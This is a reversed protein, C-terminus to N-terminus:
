IEPGIQTWPPDITLGIRSCADKKANALTSAYGTFEPVSNPKIAKAWWDWRGNATDYNTELHYKGATAHEARIKAM